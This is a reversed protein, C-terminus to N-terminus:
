HVPPSTEIALHRYGIRSLDTFLQAALKPNEAIGHEEGVLFAQAASGREMLWDYAPGSFRRSDFNLPRRNNAAAEAIKDLQTPKAAPSSQVASRVSVLPVAAAVTTASLFTRRDLRGWAAFPGRELGEYDKFVLKPLGVGARQTAVDGPSVAM